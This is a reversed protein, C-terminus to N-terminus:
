RLSLPPRRVFQPMGGWWGSPEGLRNRKTSPTQSRPIVQSTPQKGQRYKSRRNNGADTVDVAGSSDLAVV